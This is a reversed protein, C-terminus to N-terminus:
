ERSLRDELQNIGYADAGPTDDSFLRAEEVSRQREALRKERALDFLLDYAQSLRRRREEPDTITCVFIVRPKAM